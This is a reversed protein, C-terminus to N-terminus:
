HSFVRLLFLLGPFLALLSLVFALYALRGGRRRLSIVTFGLSLAGAYFLYGTGPDGWMRGRVYSFRPSIVFTIVVLLCAVAAPWTGPRAVLSARTILIYSLGVLLALCLSVDIVIGASAEKFVRLEFIAAYVLLVALIAVFIGAVRVVGIACRSSSDSLIPESM